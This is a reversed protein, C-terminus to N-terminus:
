TYFFFSSHIFRVVCHNTRASRAVCYLEYRYGKIYNLSDAIVVADKTIAREVAAKIKGRTEKENASDQYSKNKDSLVEDDSIMVVQKQQSLFYDQLEKSRKTKGSAPIGCLM